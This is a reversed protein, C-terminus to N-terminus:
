TLRNQLIDVIKQASFVVGSKRDINNRFLARNYNQWNRSGEPLEELLFYEWWGKDFDGCVYGSKVWDDFQMFDNVEAFTLTGAKAKDFLDPRMNKMICLGAIIPPVRFFGDSTFALVVAINTCIREIERFSLNKLEAFRIVTHALEHSYSGREHDSPFGSFIHRVYQEIYSEQIMTNSDPFSLKYHYFKQLYRTADVEAGYAFKVSSELQRLHTVLVFHMGEISFFHKIKEIIQLAFDPRCRDLEDIIFVLPKKNEQNSQLSWILGKLSERFEEFVHKQEVQKELTNRIVKDAAGSVQAEIDASINSFAELEESGLVGLTAAKVGLKLGGGAIVKLASVSYDLLKEKAEQVDDNNEEALGIVEGAIASFADDIYDNAFADFYVVPFGKNRLHGAWMKIFTTKGSGWQDDLVLVMPDEINALFDTLNEGFNKRGFIDKEPTFGEKEEVKVEPPFIRM